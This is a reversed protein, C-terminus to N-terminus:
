TPALNIKKAIETKIKQDRAWFEAAEKSGLNDVVWGTKEFTQILEKDHLAAKFAEDLKDVIEKPTKVPVAFSQWTSMILNPLGKELSTPVEAIDKHRKNAMTVLARVSGAQLYKHAAGFEPVVMSLHGGLLATLAPAVGGMPVHTIDTNTFMKFSEGAFHLTSGNGSSGYTFKGPNKRADAILEDLSKWPSDKRVVILMPGTVSVNIPIFDKTINYGVGKTVLPAAANTPSVNAITYGDPPANLAEYTGIVGGGGAKNVVVVPRGLVSSVKSAVLRSAIDSGGGPPMPCIIQISRTPYDAAMSANLSVFLLIISLSLFSSLRWFAVYVNKRNVNNGSMVEGKM